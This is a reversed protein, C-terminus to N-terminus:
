NCYLVIKNQELSEKIDIVRQNKSGRFKLTVDRQSDVYRGDVMVNCQQIIQKRIKCDSIYKKIWEQSQDTFSPEFIEEWYFGSYLWITKNPYSIHIENPNKTLINHNTDTDIVIDQPEYYKNRIESVLDLIESLNDENLPDGGTITIGDIYPKDLCDLLYKRTKKTFPHGFDKNWTKPNHCNYCTHSCGSVFFVVRFGTGNLVDCESIGSYNM